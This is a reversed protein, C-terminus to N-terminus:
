LADRRRELQLRYDSFDGVLGRRHTQYFIFMATAVMAAGTIQDGTLGRRFMVSGLPLLTLTVLMLALNKRQLRGQARYTPLAPHAGAAGNLRLWRVPFAGRLMLLVVTGAAAGSVSGCVSGPIAALLANLFSRPLGRDKPSTYAEALVFAALMV